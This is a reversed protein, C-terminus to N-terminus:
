FDGRCRTGRRKNSALLQRREVISILQCMPGNIKGSM